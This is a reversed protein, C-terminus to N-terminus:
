QAFDRLGATSSFSFSANDQTDTLAFTIFQISNVVATTVYANTYYAFTGTIGNALVAGNLTLTTGTFVYSFTAGTMDTFTLQSSTFTTLDTPSRIQRLDRMLRSYALRAQWTTDTVNEAALYSRMSQAIFRSVSLSLIGVLLIVLVLEILTFGRQRKM